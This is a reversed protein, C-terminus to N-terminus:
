ISKIDEPTVTNLFEKMDFFHCIPLDNHNGWTMTLSPLNELKQKLQGNLESIGILSNYQKKKYILMPRKDARVADNVCQEWFLRIEDNKVGKLHKHFNSNPYGHKAEISYKDTLFIGEPRLPMIDGSLEKNEESLTAISGSGPMRWWVYPKENGTLWKTLIKAIEREWSSGKGSKSSLKREKTVSNM